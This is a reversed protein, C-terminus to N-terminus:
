PIMASATASYSSNDLGKYARIRYEYTGPTFLPDLYTAVDPGVTDIQVFSGGSLRREIKFGDEGTSNDTWNLTVGSGSAFNASLDTPVGLVVADDTNSYASHSTSKFARVRYSYTNPTRTDVYSKVNPGVQKFFVFGGAGTAVEIKFGDENSTNDIWSLTVASGTATATFNSPANLVYATSTLTYGSDGGSNFARVRYVYTGVSLGSDDYTAVNASVSAIQNFAGGNDSREIKFGDENSSNDSWNLVVDSATAAATLGSPTSLPTYTIITTIQSLRTGKNGSDYQVGIELTTSSSKNTSLGTFSTTSLVAPTIGTPLAYAGGDASDVGNLRYFVDLTSTGTGTNNRSACPTINIQTITAGNPISSLSVGYSDRETLTTERNFDSTGNCVSEDVMTVHNSGDKPSWQQYNGASIPLLAATQDASAPFVIIFLGLLAFFSSTFFRKV